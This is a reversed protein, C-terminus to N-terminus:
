NVLSTDALNTAFEPDDSANASGVFGAAPSADRLLTPLVIPAAGMRATLSSYAERVYPWTQFQLNSIIFTSFLELTLSLQDPALSYVVEFTISISLFVEPLGELEPLDPRPLEVSSDVRVFYQHQSGQPEPASLPVPGNFSEAMQWKFIPVPAILSKADASQIARIM